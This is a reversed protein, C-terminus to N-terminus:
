GQRRSSSFFMKEASDIAEVKSGQIVVDKAKGIDRNGGHKSMEASGITGDGASFELGIM